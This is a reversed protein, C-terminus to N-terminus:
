DVKLIIKGGVGLRLADVSTLLGWESNTLIYFGSGKKLNSDVLLDSYKLYTFRSGKSMIKMDSILNKTFEIELFKLDRSILKYSLYNSKELAKLLKRSWKTNKLKLRNGRRNRFRIIFDSIERMKFRLEKKDRHKELVM